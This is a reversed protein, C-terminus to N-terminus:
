ANGLGLRRAQGADLALMFRGECPNNVVWLAGNGASTAAALALAAADAQDLNAPEPTARLGLQAALSAVVRRRAALAEAHLKKPPLHTLPSSLRLQLDPYAEFAPVGLRELARYTAFGALMFRTFTGGGSASPERADGDDELPQLLQGFLERAIAKLHPKCRPDRVCRAFYDFRPTPFMSLGPKRAKGDPTAIQARYIQRLEVDIERGRPV